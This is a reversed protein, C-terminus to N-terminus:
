DRGLSSIIERAVREATVPAMLIGNRYHGYAAWANTGEIRGLAPLGSVTAPRFGIWAEAPQGRALRPWLATARDHIDRCIAPDVRRDFTDREETSGAITFGNARQLLYTHGRRRIPGLSGPELRYGLLHGKVPVCAELPIRRGCYSLRVRDSWAGAALVVAGANSADMEEVALNERLEVGHKENAQRLANLVGVPDVYGDGPYYIGDDVVSSRIGMAEQAWARAAAAAKEAETRAVDIAGCIRFDIREGSDAELERVFAPYLAISETGLKAWISDREFEGGPALMGAGASSAEGGMRGADALVVRFGATALKWAISAGIIGAGIVFAEPRQAEV